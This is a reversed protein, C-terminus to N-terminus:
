YHRWLRILTSTTHFTHFIVVIVSVSLSILTDKSLGAGGQNVFLHLMSTVTNTREKWVALQRRFLM